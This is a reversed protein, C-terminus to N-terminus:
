VVKTTDALAARMDDLSELFANRIESMMDTSRVIEELANISAIREEREDAIDGDSECLYDLQAKPFFKDRISKMEPVTMPVRENVKLGFNNTSMGLYKAVQSQTVGWRRMEAKLNIFSMPRVVEPLDSLFNGNVTIQTLM